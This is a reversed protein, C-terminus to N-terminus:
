KILPSVLFWNKDIIEFSVIKSKAEKLKYAVIKKMSIKFKPLLSNM